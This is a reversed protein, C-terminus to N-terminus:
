AHRAVWTALASVSAATRATRLPNGRIRRSSSAGVGSMSPMTNRLADATGARQPLPSAPVRIWRRQTSFAESWGSQRPSSPSATPVRSCARRFRQSRWGCCGHETPISCQMAVDCNATRKVGVVASRPHEPGDSLIWATPPRSADRQRPPSLASRRRTCQPSGRASSMAPRNRRDQLVERPTRPQGHPQVPRRSPSTFALGPQAPSQTTSPPPAWRGASTRVRGSAASRSSRSRTASAVVAIRPNTDSTAIPGSSPTSRCQTRFKSEGSSRLLVRKTRYTASKGRSRHGSTHAANPAAM